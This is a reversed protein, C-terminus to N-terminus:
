KTEGQDINNVRFLRVKDNSFVESFFRTNETLRKESWPCKDSDTKWVTIYLDLGLTGTKELDAPSLEEEGYLMNKIAAFSSHREGGYGLVTLVGGTSYLNRRESLVPALHFREREAIISRIGTNTKIWEFVEKDAATLSQRRVDVPDRPRARVFGSYTLVPPVVFLIILLGALLAKKLGGSERILNLAEISVLPGLVLFFPFILKSENVSPLDVFICLALLCLIWSALQAMDRDKPSALRRLVHIAPCFLVILPTIITAINKFGLHLYRMSDASGGSEASGLSLYYGFGIIAALIGAVPFSIESSSLRIRRGTFKSWGYMLISSGTVTFILAMGTVMHFLTASLMVTFGLAASRYPASERYKHSRFINLCALFLCLSYGFATITLIKDSLNVMWAWFPRLFYIVNNTGIREGATAVLRGVEAMGRVDGFFARGLGLPWFVCSASEFGAITMLTALLIIRRNSTLTGIYRGVLYPLTLASVINISALAHFVDYGSLSQWMSSFQHYIWMYRIPLDALWPEYPPIGRALIESTISAHYWADSRTLLFGNKAYAIVLLATYALSVAIVAYPVPAKRDKGAPRRVILSLAYASYWMGAAIKAASAVIDSGGTIYWSGIATIAFLAPSILISYFFSDSWTRSRDGLLRILVYGPLIFAQLTGCLLALPQPLDAFLSVSSMLILIIITM